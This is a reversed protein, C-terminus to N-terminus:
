KQPIHTDKITSLSMTWLLPYKAWCLIITGLWITYPVLQFVALLAQLIAHMVLSWVLAKLIFTSTESSLCWELGQLKNLNLM